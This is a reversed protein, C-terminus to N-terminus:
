REAYIEVQYDDPDICYLQRVGDRNESPGVVLDINNARLRAAWVDVDELKDVRFGFHFKGRGAPPSAAFILLFDSWRVELHDDVRQTPLGLVDRYFHESVDLDAVGLSLHSFRLQARETM